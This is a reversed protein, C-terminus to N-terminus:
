TLDAIKIMIVIYIAVKTFGAMCKIISSLFVERKNKTKEAKIKECMWYKM